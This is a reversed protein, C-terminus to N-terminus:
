QLLHVSAFQLLGHLSHLFSCGQATQSIFLTILKIKMWMDKTRGAIIVTSDARVLTQLAAVEDRLKVWVGASTPLRERCKVFCVSQEAAM